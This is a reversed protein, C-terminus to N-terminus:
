PRIEPVAVAEARVVVPRDEPVVIRMMGLSVVRELVVRVESGVVDVRVQDPPDVALVAAARTRAGVPDVLVEGSSRLATEDLASTAAVAASDALAVLESREGVVRWLDLVVAGVGLVVLVLGLLWLTISGRDNM